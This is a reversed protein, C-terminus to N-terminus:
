RIENPHVMLEPKVIIDYEEATLYDLKLAAEKLSTGESYAKQAIEAAKDYGIKPALATVLMLSNSVMEDIRKVNPRIGVVCFKYFTDCAGTLVDISNLMNFVIVPKFTNLEFNGQSDAMAIVTDNGILQGCVMMMAECQTPNVKGPMMSSGPENTPIHLEGLGCRPGSSLWRIDNAIKMISCAFLRLASSAEVLADHAALQAFKNKASMFPLDTEDGIQEAMKEAFGMPSNLGTGVATGGIALEYVDKLSEDIKRYGFDIQAVWGSIEQGLTIPVADQLHTRGVKVLKEYKKSKENLGSRLNHIAPLLKKTIKLVSAIHMASTFVDNTSQSMNVDDNPHVPSKSGLIGGAMEIARNAIVENVNM